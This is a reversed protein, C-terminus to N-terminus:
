YRCITLRTGFWLEGRHQERSTSAAPTDTKIQRDMGPGVVSVVSVLEHVQKETCFVVNHIRSPRAVNSARLFSLEMHSVGSGFGHQQKESVVSGSLPFRPLAVEGDM